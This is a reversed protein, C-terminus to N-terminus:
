DRVEWRLNLTRDWAGRWNTPGTVDWGPAVFRVELDAPELRAQPVLRLDVRGDRVAQPIRVEQFTLEQRTGPPVIVVHHTLALRSEQVAPPLSGAPAWQMLWALYEGPRSMNQDPGLAYSPAADVPARNDVVATTRVTLDGNRLLRVEQRFSPKVYYDLKTATRNQVALHFTRDASQGAPGGGLGTRQFAEEEESRASWLRFHGGRAADGLERGLVFPDRTGTAVRDLVARMLDSLQEKRGSQDSIPPLGEYLDHLVIRGVTDATVSERIGAVQVPGVARLLHALGPVDVAIVGDVREGTAQRYMDVMTRASVPFDATANVSQWLQTPSIPGFVQSTGPPLPTGAPRNLRLDLVSGDRELIMRGGEFRVIAYSLVAGQDRMEANNQVAVFYRRPGNAGMFGLGAGMADAGGVLRAASTRALENFERRADAVPGWLGDDPKVLRGVAEGASRVQVQVPRLGELPVAGDRLQVRESVEDVQALLNRAESLATRAGDALDILGQRQRRLGPIARAVSLAPSGSLRERGLVVSREASEVAVGLSARGERSSLVAPNNVAQGLTARASGVQARVARV